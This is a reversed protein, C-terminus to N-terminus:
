SKVRALFKIKYPHSKSRHEQECYRRFAAEHLEGPLMDISTGITGGKWSGKEPGTEGSFEIALNRQIKARRFWKLWRFWGTGFHWEREEIMTTAVLQEGDHDQFAFQVKPCSDRREQYEQWARNDALGRSGNGPETWFHDGALDYFSHRVHNWQTWPLHKCWTQEIRSDMMPGGSRGYFIQLFGESYSFGYRRPDVEWYWDRGLRAITAADWGPYRKQRHPRVIPPLITIFTLRGLSIRLSCKGANASDDDGRSGLVVAWHPYDKSWSWTFPGLYRDHDGWRIARM